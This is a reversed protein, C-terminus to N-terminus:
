AECSWCGCRAGVRWPTWSARSREIRWRRIWEDGAFMGAYYTNSGFWMVSLLAVGSILPIIRRWLVQFLSPEIGLKKEMRGEDTPRGSNRARAGDWRPEVVINPGSLRGRREAGRSTCRRLNSALRGGSPRPDRHGRAPPSGSPVKPSRRNGPTSACSDPERGSFGSPCRARVSAARGDRGWARHGGGERHRAWSVLAQSVTGSPLPGRTM